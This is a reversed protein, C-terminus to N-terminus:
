LMTKVCQSLGDCKGTVAHSQGQGIHLTDRMKRPEFQSIGFSLM